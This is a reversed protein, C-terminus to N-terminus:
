RIEKQNKLYDIRIVSLCVGENLNLLQHSKGNCQSNIQLQISGCGTRGYEGKYYDHRGRVLNRNLSV